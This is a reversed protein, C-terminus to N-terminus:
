FQRFYRDRIPPERVVWYSRADRDFRRQMPDHFRRMLWGVPTVIVFFLLALIVHSVLWGVPFTLWALALYTVRSVTPVLLGFAGLGLGVVWLAVALSIANQRYALAGAIACFL